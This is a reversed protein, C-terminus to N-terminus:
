RTRLVVENSGCLTMGTASGDTEEYPCITIIKAELM